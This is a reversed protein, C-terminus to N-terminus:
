SSLDNFFEDESATRYKFRANDREIEVLEHNLVKKAQEMDAIFETLDCFIPSTTETTMQWELSSKRLFALSSVSIELGLIGALLYVKWQTVPPANESDLMDLDLTVLGYRGVFAYAFCAASAILLPVMLGGFAIQRGKESLNALAFKSALSILFAGLAITSAALSQEKQMVTALAAFGGFFAVKYAIWAAITAERSTDRKKPNQPDAETSWRENAKKGGIKEYRDVSELEKKADSIKSDIRALEVDIQDKRISRAADDAADDPTVPQPTDHSFNALKQSIAIVEHRSRRNNVTHTRGKQTDSGSSFENPDNIM